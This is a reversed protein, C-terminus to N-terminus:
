PLRIPWHLFHRSNSDNSPNSSVSSVSLRDTFIGSNRRSSKRPPQPPATLMAAPMNPAAIEQEKVLKVMSLRPHPQTMLSESSAFRAKTDSAPSLHSQGEDQSKKGIRAKFRQLANLDPTSASPQIGSTRVPVPMRTIPPYFRRNPDRDEAKAPCVTAKPTTPSTRFAPHVESDEPRSVRLAAEKAEHRQIELKIGGVFGSSPAQNQDISNRRFEFPARLLNTFSGTRSRSRTKPMDKDNSSSPLGIGSLPRARRGRDAVNVESAAAM